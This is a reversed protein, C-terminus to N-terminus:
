SSDRLTQGIAQPPLGSGRRITAPHRSADSGTPRSPPPASTARTAAYPASAGEQPWAGSSRRAACHASLCSLGAM